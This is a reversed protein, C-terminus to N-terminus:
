LLHIHTGGHCHQTRLVLLNSTSVESRRTREGEGVRERRAGSTSGLAPSAAM